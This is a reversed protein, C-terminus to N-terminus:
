SMVELTFSLENYRTGGEVSSYIISSLSRQIKHITNNMSTFVARVWKDLSKSIKRNQIPGLFLSLDSALESQLLLLESLHAM